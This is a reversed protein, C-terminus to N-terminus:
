SLGSVFFLSRHDYVLFYVIGSLDFEVQDFWFVGFLDDNMLFCVITATLALPVRHMHHAHNNTFKNGFNITLKILKVTKYTPWCQM